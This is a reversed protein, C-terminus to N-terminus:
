NMNFKLGSEKHTPISIQHTPSNIIEKEFLFYKYFRIYSHFLKEPGFIKLKLLGIM